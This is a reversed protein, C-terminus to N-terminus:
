PHAPTNSLVQACQTGGAITISLMSFADATHSMPAFHGWIDEDHHRHEIVCGVAHTVVNTHSLM